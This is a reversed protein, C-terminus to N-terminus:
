WGCSGTSQVIPVEGRVVVSIVGYLITKGNFHCLLSGESQGLVAGPALLLKYNEVHLNSFVSMPSSAPLPGERMATM